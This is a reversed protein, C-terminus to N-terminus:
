LKETGYMTDLNHHIMPFSQRHILPTTYDSFSTACQELKLEIEKLFDLFTELLFAIMKISTGFHIKVM